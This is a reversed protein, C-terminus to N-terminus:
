TCTPKGTRLGAGWRAGPLWSTTGTARPLSYGYANLPLGSYWYPAGLGVNSGRRPSGSNVSLQRQAEDQHHRESPSRGGDREGPLGRLRLAPQHEPRASRDLAPLGRRLQGGAQELRLEGPLQWRGSSASAPRDIKLSTARSGSRRRAVPGLLVLRLLLTVKGLSGEEPNAIAYTGTQRQGRPLGRDGARPRRHTAKAGVSSIRRWSTTSARWGSTSTSAEWSAAGGARGREGWFAWFRFPAAPDPTIWSGPMLSRLQLLGRGAFGTPSLGSTSTWPSARSSAGTAESSSAGGSVGTLDWVVGLRPSWYDRPEFGGLTGQPREALEWRLGLNLTMQQAHSALLGPRLALRERDDVRQAADHGADM